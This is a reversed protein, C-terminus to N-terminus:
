KSRLLLHLVTFVTLIIGVTGWFALQKVRKSTARLLKVAMSRRWM